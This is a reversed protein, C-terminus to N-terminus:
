RSLVPKVKAYVDELLTDINNDPHHDIMLSKFVDDNAKVDYQVPVTNNIRYVGQETPVTPYQNMYRIAGKAKNNRLGALYSIIYFMPMTFAENFYLEEDTATKMNYATWYTNANSTFLLSKM